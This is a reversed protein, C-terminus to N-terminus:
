GHLGRVEVLEHPLFRRTDGRTIGDSVHRRIWGLRQHVRREANRWLVRHPQGSYIGPSKALCSIRARRQRQETRRRRSQQVRAALPWTAGASGLLTIFERRKM